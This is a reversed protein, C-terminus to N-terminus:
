PATLARGNDASTLSALFPVATFAWAEPTPYTAAHSGFCSRLMATDIIGPNFSIAALGPPIEAALAGTLGEIAWKAACYPAVEPATSRGWGSSFNVIVGRRAAAMAPLFARTVLYTGAVGIDLVARFEDPPVEWLPANANIVAANNLLLRPAGCQTLVDAAFSDVDSTSAVDAPAIRHRPGVADALSRLADPNRGCGAVTWGLRAFEVAMARGLGSSCGTIVVLPSATTDKM